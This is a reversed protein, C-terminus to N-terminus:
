HVATDLHETKMTGLMRHIIPLFRVQGDALKALGVDANPEYTMAGETAIPNSNADLLDIKLQVM